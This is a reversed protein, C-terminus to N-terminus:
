GRTAGKRSVLLALAIVLTSGTLVLVAAAAVTPDVNQTVSNFMLVPLTQLRPSTLFVAMVVEDFSWVFAFLAGAFVGPAIVPLTVQFVRAPLSAGLSEAARDLNRDHRSLAAAVPQAVLPIATVAHALVLGTTTGALGWRLFAFYVGIGLLIVPVIVPATLIGDLLRRPLGRLHQLAFAAATGLVTALVAAQSAIILSNILAQLWRPDAFFEQFWQPSWDTLTVALSQRPNFAVPVIVLTPLFLWLGVLLAFIVLPWRPRTVACWGAPQRPLAAPGGSWLRDDARPHRRAAGHRARGGDDLRGLRTVNTYILQSLLANRSSGLLQPTIFFGLSLIFVLVVAAAVGPLSLPLYVQFWAARRPAGCIAAADILRRDIRRMVAYLPLVAYPLLVHAMGIVVGTTNRIM